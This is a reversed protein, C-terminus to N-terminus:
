VWPEKEKFEYLRGLEGETYETLYRGTPNGNQDLEEKPHMCYVRKKGGNKLVAQRTDDGNEWKTNKSKLFSEITNLTFYIGKFEKSQKLIKNLDLKNIMGNYTYEFKIEKNMGFGEYEIQNGFPFVEDEFRAEMEQIFETKNSEILDQKDQTFPADQFFMKRDYVVENLLHWKFAEPNNEVKLLDQLYGEDHLMHNVSTKNHKINVVFARRDQDDIHLPTDSNSYVFFNCLNPIEIQPKNKPNIILNDETILDKFENSLEKTKATNVELVVENLIIIQAGDIITSHGTIMDKFKVNPRVNKTGYLAQLIRAFIKKGVGQIVAHIITFWQVKIGNHNIEEKAKLMFALKQKIIDWNDEGLLWAMYFNFRAVDGEVAEIGPDDYVNLYDGAKLGKVEGPGLTVMGPKLGAHTLYGRLKQLASNKLLETVMDKVEHRWWDRIQEKTKFENTDIEFFDTRSQVYFHNDIVSTTIASFGKADLNPNVGCIETIWKRQANLCYEQNYNDKEVSKLVHRQEQEFKREDLPTEFNENLEELSVDCEFHKKYLAVAYLTKSRSGQEGKGIMGVCAVILKHQRYKHRFFFQKLSLPRGDPTFCTDHGSGYPLFLWRGCLGQESPVTPTTAVNDAKIKLEKEIKGELEKARVSAEEVHMPEDLFELVRWKYNLTMFCFYQTGVLEFIKSCFEEPKLRIDVDVGLWGCMFTKEDVPSRGLYNKHADGNLHDEIPIPTKFEKCDKEGTTEDWYTLKGYRSKAGSFIKSFNQIDNPTINIM